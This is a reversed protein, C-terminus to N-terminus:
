EHKFLPFCFTPIFSVWLIKWIKCESIGWPGTSPGIKNLINIFSRKRQIDLVSSSLVAPESVCPM